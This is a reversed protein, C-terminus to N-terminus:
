LKDLGGSVPKALDDMTIADGSDQRHLLLQAAHEVNGEATSLCHVVELRCAGPFLEALLQMSEETGACADEMSGSVSSQPSSQVFVFSM